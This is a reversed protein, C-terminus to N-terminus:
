FSDDVFLTYNKEYNLMVTGTPGNRQKGIIIEAADPDPTEKNYVIDRYLFLILDADQEIAGSDRLDSLIPRKDLRSEVGRSLQSLAIIPINLEKALGKLFRSIESVEHHRSEYKKVNSNLLQLYDIILLKIGNEAVIKRAKTRIEAITQTPSDDIFLKMASLRAASNTLNIWEDPTMNGSRLSSLRVRADSSLLRLALQEASMELSVFAIANGNIASNRAISLSLATKGMSPRAALIILEGPQFGCTMEDLRAYGSTIGTVGKFDSKINVLGDFAKKLWSDLGLYGKKIKSQTLEFFMKEAKEIINVIGVNNQDYCNAILNSSFNIINRLESKEKVIDIYQDIFGMSFINEQLSILTEIGGIDDFVGAIILDDQLLVSDIKGTKKYIKEISEYIIKNKYIYFDSPKLFNIYKEISNNDLLFTSLIGEEAEKSHPFVRISGADRLYNNEYISIEEYNKM